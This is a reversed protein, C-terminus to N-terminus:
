FERITEKLIIPTFIHPHVIGHKGDNISNIDENTKDIQNAAVMLKSNVVSDRSVAKLGNGLNRVLERESNQNSVLDKHNVSSLDLILKLIKTHNIRVTALHKNDAYLKDYESDIQSLVSETLKYWRYFVAYM